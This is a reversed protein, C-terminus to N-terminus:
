QKKWFPFRRKNERVAGRMKQKGFSGLKEFQEPTLIQRMKLVSDVRQEIAIGQLEKLESVIKNITEQNVAEKELEHRLELEKLRIKNRTEMRNYKENFRQEKLQEKQEESLGLREAINSIPMGEVEQEASDQEATGTAQPQAYALCPLFVLSFIAVCAIEKILRKKM